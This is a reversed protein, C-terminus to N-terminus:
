VAPSRNQNVPGTQRYGYPLRALKFKFEFEGETRDAAPKGLPKYRNGSPKSNEKKQMFLFFKQYKRQV